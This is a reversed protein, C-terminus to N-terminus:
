LNFCVGRSAVLGALLKNSRVDLGLSECEDEDDSSDPMTTFVLQVYFIRKQQNRGDAAPVADNSERMEVNASLTKSKGGRGLVM